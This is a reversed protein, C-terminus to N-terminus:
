RSATRLLLVAGCLCLSVCLFASFSYISLLFGECRSFFGPTLLVSLVSIPISLFPHRAMSERSRQRERHERHIETGRHHGNGAGFRESTDSQRNKKGHNPSLVCRSQSIMCPRISRSSRLRRVESPSTSVTMAAKGSM